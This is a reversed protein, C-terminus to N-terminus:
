FKCLSLHLCGNSNTPSKQNTNETAEKNEQHRKPYAFNSTKHVKYLIDWCLSATLYAPIQAKVTM